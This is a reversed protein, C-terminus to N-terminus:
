NFSIDISSDNLEDTGYIFLISKVLTGINIPNITVSIFIDNGTIIPNTWIYNFYETNTYEVGGIDKFDVNGLNNTIIIKRIISDTQNINNYNSILIKIEMMIPQTINIDSFSGVYNISCSGNLYSFDYKSTIINKGFDNSHQIKESILNLKNVSTITDVNISPNLYLKNASSDFTFNEDTELSSLGGGPVGILSIVGTGQNFDIYTSGSISERVRNPKFYLNNNGERLDDTTNLNLPVKGKYLNPNKGKVITPRDFFTLPM